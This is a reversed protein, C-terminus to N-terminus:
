GIDEKKVWGKSGADTICNCMVRDFGVGIVNKTWGERNFKGSTEAEKARRNARWIKSTFVEIGLESIDLVSNLQHECSNRIWV